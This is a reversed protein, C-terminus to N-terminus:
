SGHKRKEIKSSKRYTSNPSDDNYPAYRLLPEAYISNPRQKKRPPRTAMQLSKVDVGLCEAIVAHARRLRDSVAQQSCGLEQAIQEQTYGMNSLELASKQKATLREQIEAVTENMIMGSETSDYTELGPMVVSSGNGNADRGLRLATRARSTGVDYDLRTQRPYDKGSLSLERRRRSRDIESQMGSTWQRLWEPWAESKTGYKSLCRGCLRQNWEISKGCVCPRQRKKAM